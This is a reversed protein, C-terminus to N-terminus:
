TSASCNIRFSPTIDAAARPLPLPPLIFILASKNTVKSSLRIEAFANFSLPPFIVKLVRPKKGEGFVSIVAVDASPACNLPETVKELGSVSRSSAVVVTSVSTLWGSTEEIQRGVDLEKLSNM